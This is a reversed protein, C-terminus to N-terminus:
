TEFNFQDPEMWALFYNMKGPTWSALNERDALLLAEANALIDPTEVHNDLGLL